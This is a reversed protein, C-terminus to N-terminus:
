NHCIGIRRFFLAETFTSECELLWGWAFLLIWPPWQTRPPELGSLRWHQKSLQKKEPYPCGWTIAEDPAGFGSLSPCLPGKRRPRLRALSVFFIQPRVWPLFLKVSPLVSLVDWPFPSGLWSLWQHWFSSSHPKWSQAKIYEDLHAHVSLKSQYNCSKYCCARNCM